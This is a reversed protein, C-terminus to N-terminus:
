DYLVTRKSELTPQHCKPCFKMDEIKQIIVFSQQCKPCKYVRRAEGTKPDWFEALPAPTKEGRTWSVSVWKQCKSCFGSAEEFRMGGGIGAHTRFGCKASKCKVEYGTGAELVRAGGLFVCVLFIAGLVKRATNM